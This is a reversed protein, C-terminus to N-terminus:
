QDLADLVAGVTADTQMVFDGYDNLGSKGHWEKEVTPLVTVRDNEIFVYPPM